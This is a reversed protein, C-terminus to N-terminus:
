FMHGTQGTRRPAIGSRKVDREAQMAAVVELAADLRKTEVIEARNM